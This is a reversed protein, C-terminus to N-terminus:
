DFGLWKVLMNNKVKKIVREILFTNPFNTLKIEQEYFGGLIINDSEDKLQYTIPNTQLIKSVTFIETTWNPTYGKSFIHKYKSIRVKDNIKFKPIYITKNKLRVEPQIKYANIRAEHPTCKIARHKTNNYNHIIKLITNYWNWTGTATFHKYVNNKLTQIVREGISCKIVSYTSYHKIKHKKMLDQFEKNYFETGNDTQLLKPQAKKLINLMGRTCEKATKNKLPEVWVYKTYTDIIVLIYKFGYNQKSHSQVDLLDAQWLNDKSGTIVTRRPFIKRAPRHLENAINEASQASTLLNLRAVLENPDDYYVLQTQPVVDKYLGSGKKIQPSLSFKFLEDTPPEKFTPVVPEPSFEFSENRITSNNHIKKQKANSSSIYNDFPKLNLRLPTKLKANDIQTIETNLKNEEIKMREYLPKVVNVWKFYRSTKPKGDVKLHAKTIKLINYYSEMDAITTNKPEKECLLSWLGVTWPYYKDLINLNGHNFTVPFDAIKLKDTAKDYYM